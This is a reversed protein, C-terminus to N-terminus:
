SKNIIKNKEYFNKYTIIKIKPIPIIFKGGNKLFDINNNIIETAFNWALLLAYDPQKKLILKDSFVSINSGPTFLGQKIKSKETAFDIFDKDIKSYNILTMGKAPASILIIKKGKQKLSILKKVLNQRNQKVKESFKILNSKQNLKNSRELKIINSVTKKVKYNGKTSITIRVSGGHIDKKEVDIIEFGKKKFFKNLPEVTLYSLHEHYITDYELSNYLHLFHPAEIIFIGKKKDIIKKLNDVFEDLDDIHAFVNTATIVKPKKKKSNIYNVAEKGFFFNITKIKNKNAIKCINPAPEIGLVECGLDKFGKLLVGVNSGVDVTLDKPHLSYKNVISKAFDKFHKKGSETTYSEYPYNNQYLKKPNVVYGLQKFGCKNCSYVELPFFTTSKKIEEKDKFEDSPPHNGLDLFKFLSKSKCLRCNNKFYGLEM